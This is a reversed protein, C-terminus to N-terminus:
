SSTQILPSEAEITVSETLAGVELKVDIRVHQDVGLDVNSVTVGKFGSIEANVTYSGTPLSPAAYEGDTDTTVVRTLKTGTNTLTVTVGPVVAGSTDTVRGIITGTVAQAAAFTAPLLTFLFLLVPLWRVCAPTSGSKM